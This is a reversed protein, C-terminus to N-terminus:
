VSVQATLKGSPVCFLKGQLCRYGWGFASTLSTRGAAGVVGGRSFGVQQGAAGILVALDSKVMAQVEHADGMPCVSATTGVSAPRSTKVVWCAQIVM